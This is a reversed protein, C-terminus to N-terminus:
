ADRQGTGKEWDRRGQRLTTRGTTRITALITRAVFGLHTVLSRGADGFAVALYTWYCLVDWGVGHGDHHGGHYLATLAHPLTRCAVVIALAMARRVITGAEHLALFQRALTLLITLAHM